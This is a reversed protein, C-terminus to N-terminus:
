SVRRLGGRLGLRGRHWGRSVLLLCAVVFGCRGEGRCRLSAAFRHRSFGVGGGLQGAGAPIRAAAPERAVSLVLPLPLFALQSVKELPSGRANSYM